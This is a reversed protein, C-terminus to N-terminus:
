ALALTASSERSSMWVLMEGIAATELVPITVVGTSAISSQTFAFLARSSRSVVLADMSAWLHLAMQSSPISSQWFSDWAASNILSALATQEQAFRSAWVVQKWNVKAVLVLQEQTIRSALVVQEATTLSALVVLPWIMWSALAVQELAMLSTLTWLAEWASDNWLSCPLMM